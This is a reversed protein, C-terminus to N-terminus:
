FSGHALSSVHLKVASNHMACNLRYVKYDKNNSNQRNCSWSYGAVIQSSEIGPNIKLLSLGSIGPNAFRDRGNLNSMRHKITESLLLPRELDHGLNRPWSRTLRAM